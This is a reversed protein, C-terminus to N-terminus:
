NENEIEETENGREQFPFDPNFLEELLAKLIEGFENELASDMETKGAFSMEFPNENQKRLSLIAASVPRENAPNEQRYLYAYLMLQLAEPKKIFHELSTEGEKSSIRYSTKSKAGTKYDVIRIGKDSSEVRDATGKLKILKGSNLMISGQMEQENAIIIRDPHAKFERKEYELFRKLMMSLTELTLLNPGTEIEAEGLVSRLKNYIKTRLEEQELAFVADDSNPTFAKGEKTYFEELLEHIAIGQVRAEIEEELEEEEDLRLVREFYFQLPDRLYNILATPSLGREAIEELRLMLAPTKEVILDNSSSLKAKTSIIRESIKLQKNKQPWEIKLQEIFRSAEASGLGRDSTGHLLYVEEAGQLLRYFHYAYVADKDLYTPLKFKKKVDFPILSNEGRGKPLIGENLSCIVLRKFDLARTELMGMVQLGKLPEGKLDLSLDPLIERYLQLATEFKKVYPYKELLSALQNFLSYFGFLAESLNQSSDFLDKLELCSNALLLFREHAPTEARFYKEPFPALVSELQLESYSRFLAKSTKIKQKVEDPAKANVTNIRRVVFSSLLSDWKRHYYRPAGNKDLKNSREAEVPFELLLEFFGSLPSNELGLGMTLNFAEINPHLTNLFSSLLAEDALVLATENQESPDLRGLIGNAIHAQLNNGPVAISEVKRPKEKLKQHLGYFRDQSKLRKILPSKRLFQGAEHELDEFYYRDIDWYFDAIGEEFLQLFIEEEAKNLANFGLFYIHSYQKKLERSIRDLDQHMQRYALGQYVRGDALLNSTFKKYVKSLRPWLALYEKLLENSEGPELNWSEIRKVDSLYSFLGEVDVLHRDLENCDALFLRGWKSYDDFNEPKDLIQYYAEYSKFFLAATEESQLGTSELILEEITIIKPGIQVKDIQRSLERELFVAARRSPMVIAITHLPRSDKLIFAAAQQLFTTLPSRNECIYM